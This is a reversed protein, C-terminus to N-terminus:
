VLFGNEDLKKAFAAVCDVALGEDVDCEGLLPAVLADRSTETQMREWLFAETENRTLVVHQGTVQHLLVGEKIKM